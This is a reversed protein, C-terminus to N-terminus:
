PSPCKLEQSELVKHTFLKRHTFMEWCNKMGRVHGDALTSCPISAMRDWFHCWINFVYILIIHIYFRVNTLQGWGYPFFTENVHPDRPYTDAPTRQGHRLVMHVMRLQENENMYPGVHIDCYDCPVPSGGSFSVLFISFACILALM